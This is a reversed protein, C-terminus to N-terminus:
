SGGLDRIVRALRAIGERIREETANSFNLRLTNDGGGDIYFPTGPLVAVDNQIAATFVNMSRIGDPLTVWVFMGGEPRTCRVSAPFKDRIEELMVACQHRYFAQVKRIHADIDAHELYELAVRQSLYNSHLDSAQKAIVVQEMIDQPAVIWGLRMGPALIKSFSGTIITLEPLYQRFSPRSTGTFNLEGYADDEVMFTGYKALIEAIERRREEAYTIGSPNQANPVGYFFKPRKQELVGALMATDPGEEHLIVPCFEPEYLSFAQIAGLYGPREIAVRDGRDILVKGILDLCQQSGNTILIEEPAITLGLRKRYRDAIWQRLPLCGETTSYQLVSRGDRALVRETATRIGDVDILHPNPLGGAFSIIRPNETVKLIERIFSRPTTAMRTAFLKKAPRPAASPFAPNQLNM